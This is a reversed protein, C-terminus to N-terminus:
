NRLTEKRFRGASGVDAPEYFNRGTRAYPAFPWNRRKRRRRDPTGAAVDTGRHEQLWHPVRLMTLGLSAAIRPVILSQSVTRVVAGRWGKTRYAHLLLLPLVQLTSVFQGNEEIIGLRDADGDNAVGIQSGTQVVRAALPEFQPMMPEPISEALYRIPFAECQRSRARHVALMSELITGGSGHM